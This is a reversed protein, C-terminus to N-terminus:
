SNEWIEFSMRYGWFRITRLYSVFFCSCLHRVIMLLTKLTKKVRSALVEEPTYPFVLNQQDEVPLSSPSMKTPSDYLWKVIKLPLEKENLPSSPPSFKNERYM